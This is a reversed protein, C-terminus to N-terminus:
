WCKYQYSENERLVKDVDIKAIKKM